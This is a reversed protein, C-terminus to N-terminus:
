FHKYSSGYVNNVRNKERCSKLAIIYWDLDALYFTVAVCKNNKMKAIMTMVVAIMTM